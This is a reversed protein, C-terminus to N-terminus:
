SVTTNHRRERLELQYLEFVDIPKCVENNISIGIAKNARLYKVARTASSFYKYETPTTITIRIKM